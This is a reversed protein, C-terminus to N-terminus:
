VDLEVVTIGDGGFQIHEDYYKHILDVTALYERILKRLIGNGKGHLITVKSIQSVIADDIYDRLIIMAEDGRKGRIDLQTRFNIKTEFQWDATQSSTTARAFKRAENRSIKQLRDKHVTTKLLGLNITIMNGDIALVDSPTSQGELKVKDGIALEQNVQENQAPKEKKDQKDKKQQLKDIKANIRLEEDSLANIQEHRYNELEQRL